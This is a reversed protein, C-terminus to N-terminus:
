EIPYRAAVDVRINDPDMDRASPPLDIEFLVHQRADKEMQIEKNEQAIVENTQKNILQVAVEVQGAGPGKNVVVAEVRFPQDSGKEPPVVTPTGEIVPKPGLCGSLLVLGLILLIASYLRNRM